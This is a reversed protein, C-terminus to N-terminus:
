QVTGRGFGRIAGALGGSMFGAGGRQGGVVQTMSARAEQMGGRLASEFMMGGAGASALQFGGQFVSAGLFAMKKMMAGLLYAVVLMKILSDIIGMLMPIHKEYFDLSSTGFMACYDANGSMMPTLINKLPGTVHDYGGIRPVNSYNDKQYNDYDTGVQQSCWQQENRYWLSYDDGLVQNLSEPDVFVVYDLIPLTLALYAFVFVPIGMGAIVNSLWREYMGLNVGVLMLPILLPSIAILFGVYVYSLIFIYVAYFVFGLVNLLATIGMFFVAVGLTGSFLAASLMAFIANFLLLPESFKFLKDIICDMRLWVASNTFAGAVAATVECEMDGTFGISDVVVAQVEEMIAFINPAFGGLEYGFTLVVGIKLLLAWAKKTIESVGMVAQVGFLTVQFVILAIVTSYMAESFEALFVMTADIIAQQLCTVVLFTFGETFPCPVNSVGNFYMLAYSPLAYCAVLVGLAIASFLIYTRNLRDTM